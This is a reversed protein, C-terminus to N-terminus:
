QERISVSSCLGLRLRSKWKPNGASQLICWVAEPHVTPPRNKGGRCGKVALEAPRRPPVWRSLRKGLGNRVCRRM